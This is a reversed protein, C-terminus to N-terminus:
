AAASLQGAHVSNQAVPQTKVEKKAFLGGTIFAKDYQETIAKYDTLLSEPSFAEFDIKPLKMAIRRQNIIGAIITKMEALVAPMAASAAVAEEAVKLKETLDTITAQADVLQQQIALVEESVTAETSEASAEAGIGETEDTSAVIETAEEETLGLDELTKGAELAVKLEEATMKMRYGGTQTTPKRKSKIYDITQDYSMVADILGMRLAEDGIYTEGKMSALRVGPRKSRVHEQFLDNYQDVQGKIHAVEKDTLDKYPGGVAKLEDSKIVTVKMGNDELQKEYSIHTVIVGISGWESEPSGILAKANAAIWYGGSAVNKQSYVYIDKVAGIKTLADSVDTVGFVSGGPTGMYLLIENVDPDNAAMTLDARIDDYASYGLYRTWWSGNTLLPGSIRYIAIGDVISYPKADTNSDGDFDDDNQVKFKEAIDSIQSIAHGMEGAYLPHVAEISLTKKM